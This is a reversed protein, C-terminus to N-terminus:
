CYYAITLDVNSAPANNADILMHASYMNAENQHYPFNM